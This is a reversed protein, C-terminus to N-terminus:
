LARRSYLTEGHTIAYITERSWQIQFKREDAQQSFFIVSSCLSIRKPVYNHTIVTVNCNPVSNFQM